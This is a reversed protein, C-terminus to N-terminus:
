QWWTTVTSANFSCVDGIRDFIMMLTFDESMQRFLLLSSAWRQLRTQLMVPEYDSWVCTQKSSNALEKSSSLCAPPTVVPALSPLRCLCLPLSFSIFDSHPLLQCVHLPLPSFSQLSSPAPTPVSGPGTSTNTSNVSICSKKKEKKEQQKGGALRYKLALSSWEHRWLTVQLDFGLGDHTLEGKDWGTARM